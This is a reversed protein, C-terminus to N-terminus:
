KTEQEIAATENQAGLVQKVKELSSYPGQPVEKRSPKMLYVHHKHTEKTMRQQLEEAKSQCGVYPVTVVNNDYRVVATYYRRCCSRVLSAFGAGQPAAFLRNQDRPNCIAFRCAGNMTVPSSLATCARDRFGEVPARLRSWRLTSRHMTPRACFSLASSRMVIIKRWIDWQIYKLKAIAKTLM